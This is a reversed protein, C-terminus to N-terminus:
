KKGAKKNMPDRAHLESLFKEGFANWGALFSPTFPNASVFDNLEHVPIYAVDEFEENLVLKKGEPLLAYYFHIRECHHYKGDVENVDAWGLEHLPLVTGIEESMERQAGTLLHEGAHVHGGVSSDWKLPYIKKLHSRYQLVVREQSDVVWVHVAPHNIGRLHADMKEVRGIIKGEPSLEDVWESM